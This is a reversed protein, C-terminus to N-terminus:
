QNSVRRTLAAPTTLVERIMKQKEWRKCCLIRSKRRRGRRRRDEGRHKELAVASAEGRGRVGHIM